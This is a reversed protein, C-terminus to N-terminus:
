EESLYGEPIREAIKSYEEESPPTLLEKVKNIIEDLNSRGGKSLFGDVKLNMLDKMMHPEEHNTYVLVQVYPDILRIKKLVEDGKHMPLYLDLIILDFQNNQIKKEIGIGDIFWTVEFGDDILEEELPKATGEEDEIILIRGNIM